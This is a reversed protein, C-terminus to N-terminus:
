VFEIVFLHFIENELNVFVNELSTKVAVLVRWGNPFIKVKVITLHRIVEKEQADVCM